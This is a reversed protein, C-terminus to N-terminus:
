RDCDFIRLCPVKPMYVSHLAFVFLQFVLCVFELKCPPSFLYQPNDTASTVKTGM